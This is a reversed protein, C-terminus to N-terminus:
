EGLVLTAFDPTNKGYAIGPTWALYNYGRGPLSDADGVCVTFQFPKGAQPRFPALGAWPLRVEYVCRGAKGDLRSRFAVGEVNKPGGWFSVAHDLNSYVGFGWERRVDPQGPERAYLAVQLMDQSWMMTDNERQIHEQDRVEAAVYLAQDDWQLRITASLDSPGRWVRRKGPVAPDFYAANELTVSAAGTWDALDGDMTVAQQARPVRLRPQVDLPVDRSLPYAWNTAWPWTVRAVPSPVGPGGACTVEFRLETQANTEVGFAAEAPSVAWGAPCDWTVAGQRAARSPNRLRLVTTTSWPGQRDLDATVPTLTTELLLGQNFPDDEFADYTAIAKQLPELRVTHAVPRNLAYVKAAAAKLAAQAQEIAARTEADAGAAPRGAGDAKGSTVFGRWFACDLLDKARVAELVQLAQAVMPTNPFRSLNVGEALLAAPVEAVPVDDLWLAYSPASLGTVVLRDDSLLDDLQVLFAFPRAVLPTPYPLSECQRRFQVAGNEVRLESVKCRGVRAAGGGANIEVRAVEAGAGLGRLLHFAIFAQGEQQPHVGDRSLAFAPGAVVQGLGLTGGYLTTMDVFSAGLRQALRGEGQGLMLLHYPYYSRSVWRPDDSVAVESPTPSVLVVRVKPNAARASRVSTEVNTLFRTLSEARFPRYGGDNYGMAYTFLDPRLAVVDRDFRALSGSNDGSQGRNFFENRWEPYRTAIYTQVLTPYWETDTISDGYFVVRDGNRILFGPEAAAAVTAWLVWAAALPAKM